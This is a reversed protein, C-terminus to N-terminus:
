GRVSAAAVYLAVYGAVGVVTGIIKARLSRRPDRWLMWAAVPSTVILLYLIVMVLWRTVATDEQVVGANLSPAFDDVKRMDPAVEGLWGPPHNPPLEAVSGKDLARDLEGNARSVTV